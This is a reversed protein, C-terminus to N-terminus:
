VKTSTIKISNQWYTSHYSLSILKSIVAPPIKMDWSLKSPGSQVYSKGTSSSAASAVGAAVAAAASSSASTGGFIAASAAAAAGLDIGAPAGVSAAAPDL